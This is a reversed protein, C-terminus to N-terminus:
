PTVTFSGTIGPDTHDHFSFTGTENLTIIKVRDGRLTVADMGGYSVPDSYTGFMIMYDSGDGSKLTLTDCRKAEITFPAVEAGSIMMTHNASNGQCAGTPKGGVEAINEDQALRTTVETPSMTRYLNDMILLSAGVVLTILAATMVFFITNYLPKPGRGLHLFFLIQVVMQVLALGIITLLLNKGSFVQKTVLLYPVITLGLSLVFGVVYSNISGHEHPTNSTDKTLKTM